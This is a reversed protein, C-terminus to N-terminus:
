AAKKDKGKAKGNAKGKEGKEKDARKGKDAKDGKKHAVAADKLGQREAKAVLRVEKAEEVTVTGDKGVRDAAARIKAASQDLRAMMAKREEAGVNRKDLMKSVRERVKAIRTEVRQKFDAAKMPFGQDRDAKERKEKKEKKDSKTDDQRALETAEAEAGAGRVLAAAPLASGVLAASLVSMIISRGFM